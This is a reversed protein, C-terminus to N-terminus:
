TDVSHAVIIIRHHVVNGLCQYSGIEEKQNLYLVTILELNLGGIVLFDRSLRPCVHELPLCKVISYLNNYDGIVTVWIYKEDKLHPCHKSLVASSQEQITRQGHLLVCDTHILM